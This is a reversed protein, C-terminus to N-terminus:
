KRGKRGGILLSGEGAGTDTKGYADFADEIGNGVRSVGGTSSAEDYSNGGLNYVNHAVTTSDATIQGGSSGPSGTHENVTTGFVDSSAPVEGAHPQVHGASGPAGTSLSNPTDFLAPAHTAKEGPDAM